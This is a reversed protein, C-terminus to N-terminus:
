LERLKKELNLQFNKKKRMQKLLLHFLRNGSKVICSKIKLEACHMTIQNTSKKCSVTIIETGTFIFKKLDPEFTLNYNIPVTDM